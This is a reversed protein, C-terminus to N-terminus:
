AVGNEKENGLNNPYCPSEYSMERQRNSSDEFHEIKYQPLVM